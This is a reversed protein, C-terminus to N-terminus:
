QPSHRRHGESNRAMPGARPRDAQGSLLRRSTVQVPQDPLETVEIGATRLGAAQEDAGRILLGGAYEALIEVGSTRVSQIQDATTAYVFFKKPMALAQKGGSESPFAHRGCSM